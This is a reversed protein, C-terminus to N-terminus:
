PKESEVPKILWVPELSYMVFFLLFIYLNFINMNLHSNERQM